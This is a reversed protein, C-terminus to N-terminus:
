FLLETGAKQKSQQLTSVDSLDIQNNVGECYDTKGQTVQLKGVQADQVTNIVIEDIYPLQDGDKSVAWYYPNRELVVGKNNDFSKTKYGILTPCAPNRMWDTKNEWLGGVTDWNEAGEPQIESPVAQRLAQSHDLDPWQHRGRGQGV